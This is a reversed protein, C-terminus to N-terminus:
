YQQAKVWTRRTHAAKSPGSHPCRLLQQKHNQCSPKPTESRAAVDIRGEEGLGREFLLTSWSPLFCLVTTKECDFARRSEVVILLVFYRTTSRQRWCGREWFAKKFLQEVSANGVDEIGELDGFAAYMEVEVHVVVFTCRIMAM